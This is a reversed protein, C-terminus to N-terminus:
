DVSIQFSTDELIQSIEEPPTGQIHLSTAERTAHPGLGWDIIPSFDLQPHKGKKTNTTDLSTGLIIEVIGYPINGARVLELSEIDVIPFSGIYDERRPSPDALLLEVVGSEDCFDRADLINTIENEGTRSNNLSTVGLYKIGSDNAARVLASMHEHGSPDLNHMHYGDGSSSVIHSPLSDVYDNRIPARIHIAAGVRNQFSEVDELLQRFHPNVSDMDILKVFEHSPMMSSFPKTLDTIGKLDLTKLYAGDNEADFWIGFVGLKQAAIIDGEKLLEVAQIIDQPNDLSGVRFNISGEKESKFRFRSVLSVFESYPTKIVETVAM